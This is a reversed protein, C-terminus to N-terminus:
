RTLYKHLMVAVQARTASSDPSITTASTGSIIGSGVAWQMAAVAYSDINGRDSYGALSASSSVSAGQYLAFQYLIAAIQERSVPKNPSYTTSTTGSVIGSNYAWLVPKYYYQSSSVDKFPNSGSVAPSGAAKYLVTVLMARNMTSTPSFASAGTGSVLSWQACYDIANASWSGTNAATVDAFKSSATKSKVNITISGSLTRGLATTATYSVAAKGSFGAAPIYTLMSIPLEGARSTKTYFRSTGAVATGSGNTYNYFLKGSSPTGFRMSVIPDSNTSDYFDTGVFTYGESYSVFSGSGTSFIVKGCYLLTGSSNYVAYNLGTDGLTNSPVYVLKDIVYSASSNNAYFQYGSCNASTLQTGKNSSSTYGYYLSGTSPVGLLQIRFAPSAASTNTATKYVSTFSASDFSKAASSNVTYTVDSVSGPTVCIVLTGTKVTGTAGATTGGYCTFNVYTCYSSNASKYKVNDIYRASAPKTGTYTSSYFPTAAGPLFSTGDYSFTGTNNSAGDLTVYALYGAGSVAQYWGAFLSEQIALTTNPKTNYYMSIIDDPVIIRLECDGLKAGNAAYATFVRVYTGSAAPVFYLGSVLKTSGSFYFTRNISSVSSKASDAYLTGVGSGSAISTSFVINDCAAGYKAYVANYILSSAATNEGNLSSGFVYPADSSLTVNVVLNGTGVNITITGNMTRGNTGDTIVYPMSYTGSATPSFVMASLESFKYDTNASVKNFISTSSTKYLTGYTSSGLATFKITSAASPVVGYAYVFKASLMDSVTSLSLNSGITAQDTVSSSSLDTVTVQCSNKVISGDNNTLTATVTSSGEGRGYVSATLSSGSVTVASPNSSVWSISKYSGNAPTTVATMTGNSYLGLYTNSLSLATVKGGSVTLAYSASTTQTKNNADTYTYKATITTKGDTVATVTADASGSAPSITAVSTSASSWAINAPILNYGTTTSKATLSLTQKVEITNTSGTITIGPTSTVTLAVTASRSGDASTATITASGTGNATVLGTDSVNAVAPSSTAWKANDYDVTPSATTSSAYTTITHLQLSSGPYLNASSIQTNANGSETTIAISSVTDKSVTINFTSTYKGATATVVASGAEKGSVTLASKGGADVATSLVTPVTIYSAGSKVAWEVTGTYNSPTVYVALQTDKGVYVSVNQNSPSIGTADVAGAAFAAPMLCMILALTLLLALSKKLKRKM